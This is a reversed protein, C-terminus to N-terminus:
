KLEMTTTGVLNPGDFLNITYRGEILDSEKSNVLICVDLEDNEYFVNTSSSYNINKEEFQKVADDGMMKNRPNIVQVYLTRDGKQAIANPALTFCARIKDARSARKTDVVKGSNRIIVAEGRLDTAKVISGKKITENMAMNEQSVSDVVMRTNQLETSTSDREMALRQNAAILSDARKFLMAREQKLRGVEAKYRAILAVNAQADKVSDLLITIRERAALLDKDKLENDKIVEDYNAILGELEQEIDAKQMELNSVTNKSDNFLTVTYVALAILLVSLVGILIKFKGSNNENETSM